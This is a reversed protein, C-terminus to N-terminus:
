TTPQDSFLFPNRCKAKQPAKNSKHSNKSQRPNKEREREKPQGLKHSSQFNRPASQSSQGFVIPRFWREGPEELKTITELANDFDATLEL